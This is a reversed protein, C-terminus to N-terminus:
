LQVCAFYIRLGVADHSLRHRAETAASGAPQGHGARSILNHGACSRSACGDTGFVSSSSSSSTSFLASASARLSGPTTCPSGINTIRGALIDAEDSFRLPLRRVASDLVLLRSTWLFSPSTPSTSFAAPWHRKSRRGLRLRAHPPCGGLSQAAQPPARRDRRHPSRHCREARIGTM